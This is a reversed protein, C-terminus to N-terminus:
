RRQRIPHGRAGSRKTEVDLEQRVRLGPFWKLAVAASAVGGRHLDVMEARGREVVVQLTRAEVPVVVMRAQDFLRTRDRHLATTEQVLHELVEVGFFAFPPREIGLM